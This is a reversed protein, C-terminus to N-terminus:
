KISNEKSGETDNGHEEKKFVGFATEINSLDKNIDVANLPAGSQINKIRRRPSKSDTIGSMGTVGM